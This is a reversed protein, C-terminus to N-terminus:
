CILVLGFIVAVQREGDLKKGPQEIRSWDWAKSDNGDDELVIRPRALEWPHDGFFETRLRDEEYTINLPMFMKSAKKKGKRQVPRTYIEAPPIKGVVAHWTPLQKVRNHKYLQSMTQHVRVATLSSPPM